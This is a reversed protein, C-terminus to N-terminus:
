RLADAARRGPELIVLEVRRNQQRGKETANTAVPHAPGYGDAAVRSADVGGQILAQRVSEARRTSLDVNYDEKGINDSYGEVVVERDELAILFGAVRAVSVRAESKLEDSDFEFLVGGLTLVLGRETQEADLAQANRIAAEVAGRTVATELRARDLSAAVDADLAQAEARALAVQAYTEALHAEHDMLAQDGNNHFENEAAAIRRRAERLDLSDDAVIGSARAKDIEARARVLSTEDPTACSLAMAAATAILTLTRTGNM